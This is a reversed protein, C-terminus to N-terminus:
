ASSMDLLARIKRALEDPLYPKEIHAAARGQLAGGREPGEDPYGSTFLVSLSPRESWLAEALARGNMGPMVVDTLLLDIRQAPRALELAERASAAELVSYGFARL